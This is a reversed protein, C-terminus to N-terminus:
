SIKEAYQNDSALNVGLVEDFHPKQNPRFRGFKVIINDFEQLKDIKDEIEDRNYGTYIVIDDDTVARVLSCVEIVDDFSDMPELGQMCLASTLVSTVYLHAIRAPEIELSKCDTLAWNHCLQTGNERDCKFDCYPFEITMCTKKYNVFDEFILGKIVM